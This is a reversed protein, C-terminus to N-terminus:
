DRGTRLRAFRLKPRNLGAFIRARHGAVGSRDVRDRKVGFLRLDGGGAVVACNANPLIRLRRLVDDGVSCGHPRDRGALVALLDDGAPIVAHNMKPRVSRLHRCVFQRAVLRRNKTRGKAGICFLEGRAVFRANDAQPIRGIALYLRHEARVFPGDGRCAVM